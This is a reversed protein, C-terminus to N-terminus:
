RTGSRKEEHWIVDLDLYRWANYDVNLRMGDLFEIMITTIRDNSFLLMRVKMLKGTKNVYWSGVIPKHQLKRAEGIQQQNM